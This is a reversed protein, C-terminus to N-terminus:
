AARPQPQPQLDGFGGEVAGEREEEEEARLVAVPALANPFPGNASSFVRHLAFPLRMINTSKLFAWTTLLSMPMVNAAALMSVVTVASAWAVGQAVWTSQRCGCPRETHSVPVVQVRVPRAAVDTHRTVAVKVLVHACALPDKLVRRCDFCHRLLPRTVCHHVM